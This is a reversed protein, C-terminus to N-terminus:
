LGCWAGVRRAIALRGPGVVVVAMPRTPMERM